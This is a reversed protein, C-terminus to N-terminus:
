ADAHRVMDDQRRIYHLPMFIAFTVIMPLTFMQYRVADRQRLTVCFTIADRRPSSCGRFIKALYYDVTHFLPSALSTLLPPM